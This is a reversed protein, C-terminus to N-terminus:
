LFHHHLRQHHLDGYHLHAHSRLHHWLSSKDQEMGMDYLLQAKPPCVPQLYWAEDFVAHNTSSALEGGQDCQIFGGDENAFTRMFIKTLEIPPDKTKTLFIWSHKSVKYV